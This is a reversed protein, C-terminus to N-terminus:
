VAKKFYRDVEKEVKKKLREYNKKFLNMTDFELVVLFGVDGDSFEDVGYGKYQIDLLIESLEDFEDIDTSVNDFHISTRVQGAKSVM